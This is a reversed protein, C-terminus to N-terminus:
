VTTLNPLAGTCCGPIGFTTVDPFGMANAVSVLLNNHPLDKFQLFRGTKLGGAAGGALLWPINKYDHTNGVGLENGWLLLTNDLMNSGDTEQTAALKDLMYNVKQGHWVNIKILKEISAADDMHSLGHHEENVGAFPFYQWSDANAFMFTSVNTLGCVHALLMLDIQATAIPDFTAQDSTSFTTPKTPPTCVVGSASLQQEMTRIGTLHADLRAKDDSTFRTELATIDSTVFDLVSKRDALLQTLQSSSLNSNAFMRTYMQVPDNVPVNPLSAGAYSITDLPHGGSVRVGFELSKFTTTKGIRDAILQDVSQRDAYGAPGQAGPFSGPLLSGGTLMGGPGKMHPGGPKSGTTQGVNDTVTSYMHVGQLVLLKAAHAAIPAIIRPGTMMSATTLATGSAVKPFFESAITGNASFVGIFRRAGPAAADAGFVTATRWIPSTLAVTLASMGTLLRRRTLVTRHDQPNNKANM